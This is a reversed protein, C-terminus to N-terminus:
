GLMVRKFETVTLDKDTETLYQRITKKTDRVFQQNLLTNDKFFKNLKGIAIKEVLEEPKGEQRALEKGIEIEKDIIKQEVDDKDVAVPSMAAVQMALEHGIQDAKEVDDKNLGLLTALKNGQHNYASVKAADIIEYSSLEIKEGIKGIQDMITEEVTRGNLKIAKLEDITKTSNALALDMISSVFDIFDQNKAVFDTECNIAVICGFKKDDTTKAIVVGESAEKGARKSAVKQGKKRLIDIANEFDGESEVLAKKCDMMGAGTQKRLKNVEAATIKTM